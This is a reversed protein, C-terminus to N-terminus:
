RGNSEGVLDNMIEKLLKEEESSLNKEDLLEPRRLLTRKLAMKLRWKRIRAHHGSLLVEPVEKGRFTRPRTYHPHELLGAFFSDKEHADEAGLVGPLMRAVADILIMAPLEGGTLVYDGISIEEDVITERIREDIGEYHGCILILGDERSLKKVMKQNLKKGQPTMLITKYKANNENVKQWGRYIPEPKLIMGSGGGYPYDDASNHKDITYDRIDEINIKIINKDRARALISEQFPGKFMDPFLTLIEFNM